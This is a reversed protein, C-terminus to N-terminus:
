CPHDSKSRRIVHYWADRLVRLGHKQFSEGVLLIPCIFGGIERVVEGRGAYSGGKRGVTGGEYITGM